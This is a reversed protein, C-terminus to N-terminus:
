CVEAIPTIIPPLKPGTNTKRDRIIYGLAEAEKEHDHIWGHHNGPGGCTAMWTTTDCLYRGRRRKHHPTRVSKRRCQKGTKPDVFECRPHLPWWVDKLAEYILNLAATKASAPKLKWNWKNAKGAPKWTVGKPRLVRRRTVISIRGRDVAVGGNGYFGVQYFQGRPKPARRSKIVRGTADLQILRGEYKRVFREAYNFGAKRAVMDAEPANMPQTANRWWMLGRKVEIISKSM